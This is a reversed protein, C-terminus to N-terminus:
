NEDWSRQEEALHGAGSGPVGAGEAVGGGVPAVGAEAVLGDSVGGGVVQTAGAGDRGERSTLISIKEVGDKIVKSRTSKWHENGWKGRLHSKM